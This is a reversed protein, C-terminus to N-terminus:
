EVTLTYEVETDLVGPLADFGSEAALEAFGAEKTISGNDRPFHQVRVVLTGRGTSRVAFRNALGLPLGTVDEDAYEHTLVAIGNGPNAPGMVATGTFFLQYEFGLRDIAASADFPPDERSNSMEVTMEWDTGDTLFVEESSPLGTGVPDSYAARVVDGGDVATFVVDMTDFLREEAPLTPQGACGALVCGLSLFRM